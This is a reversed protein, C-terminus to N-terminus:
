SPFRGLVQFITRYNYTSKLIEQTEPNPNENRREKAKRGAKGFHRVEQLKERAADSDGSLDFIRTLIQDPAIDRMLAAIIWM